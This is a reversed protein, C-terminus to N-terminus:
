KNLLKYTIKMNQPVNNKSFKVTSPYGNENYEYTFNINEKPSQQNIKSLINNNACMFFWYPLEYALLESNIMQSCIGNKKDFTYKNVIAASPYKTTIVEALNMSATYSLATTEILHDNHDYNNVVSIKQQQNYSITYSGRPTYRSLIPDYDFTLAKSIVKQDSWEYYVIYFLAKNRYKEVKFLDKGGNYTFVIKNNDNDTIETLLATNENYKLNLTFDTTELKVPICLRTEHPQPPDIIEPSLKKSKKCSALCILVAPIM